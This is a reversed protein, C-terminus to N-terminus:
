RTIADKSLYASFQSPIFYHGDFFNRCVKEDSLYGEDGEEEGEEEEKIYVASSQVKKHLMNVEVMWFFDDEEKLLFCIVDPDAMSVVPFRPLVRPLNKGAEDDDYLGFFEGDDM